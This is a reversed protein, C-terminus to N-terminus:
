ETRKSLCCQKYLAEYVLATEKWSCQQALYMGNNKLQKTLDSSNLVSLIAKTLSSVNLPDDLLLANIKNSLLASVGCYNRGSVIVPLSHAMAELVVMGFSDELTPHALVDAAYYVMTTNALPGLFRIRSSIALAEAKAKFTFIQDTNGAVLLQVHPPTNQLAVLLTALGKKVYDRAVFLIFVGNPELGLANRAELKTIAQNPLLVGPSIVHLMSVSRPYEAALEDRLLHSVAVVARGAIPSMRAREFLLYTFLRASLGTMIYHLILAVGKRNGFRSRSTTKVHMTQVNGHWVNEHSHVIDFGDSTKTWTVFAYWLQNLWRPRKFPLSVQHYHVDPWYHDIEQAFVHIEHRAALQEVLAMSYREAGGGAKAFVRTLVAIKL